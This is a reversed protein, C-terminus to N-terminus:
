LGTDAEPAAGYMQKLFVAEKKQEAQKNEQAHRLENITKLTLKVKRTDDLEKISIDTLPNYRNEEEQDFLNIFERLQM